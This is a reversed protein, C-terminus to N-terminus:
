GGFHEGTDTKYLVTPYATRFTTVNNCHTCKHEYQAPYATNSVGTPRMVGIACMDCTYEVHFTQVAKKVEPM